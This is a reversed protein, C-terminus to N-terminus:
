WNKFTGRKIKYWENNVEETDYDASSLSKGKLNENVAEAM